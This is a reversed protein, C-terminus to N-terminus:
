WFITLAALLFFASYYSFQRDNYLLCYIIHPQITIFFNRHLRKRTDSITM